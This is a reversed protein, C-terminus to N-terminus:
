IIHAIRFVRFLSNRSLDIADNLKRSNEIVFNSVRSGILGEKCWFRDITFLFTNGPQPGRKRHIPQSSLPLVRTNLSRLSSAQQTQISLKDLEQDTAGDYLGSITKTAIRLSDVSDLNFCCRTIARVIKTIDVPEYTGNRKRVQM